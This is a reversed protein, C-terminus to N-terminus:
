NPLTASSTIHFGTELGVSPSQGPGSVPQGGGIWVKVEGPSIRRMGDADVISLERDHLPFTVIQSAGPQFHVLQFGALARLTTGEVDPHSLYIEIVEDGA